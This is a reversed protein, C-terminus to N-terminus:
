LCKFLWCFEEAVSSVVLSSFFEWCLQRAGIEEFGVSVVGLPEGRDGVVM